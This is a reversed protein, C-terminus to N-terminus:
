SSQPFLYTPPLSTWSKSCTTADILKQSKFFAGRDKTLLERILGDSPAWSAMSLDRVLLGRTDEPIMLDKYEYMLATKEISVPIDLRSGWRWDPEVPGEGGWEM